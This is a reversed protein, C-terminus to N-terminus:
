PRRAAASHWECHQLTECRCRQVASGSFRQLAGKVGHNRRRLSIQNDMRWSLM